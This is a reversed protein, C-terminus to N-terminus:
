GLSEYRNDQELGLIKALLEVRKGNEDGFVRRLKRSVYWRELYDELDALLDDPDLALERAGTDGPLGTEYRSIAFAVPDTIKERSAGYILWALFPYFPKDKFHRQIKLSVSARKLIDQFLAQPDVSEEPEEVVEPQADGEQSGDPNADNGNEFIETDSKAIANILNLSTTTSENILKISSEKNNVSLVTANAGLVYQLQVWDPVSDENRHTATAGLRAGNAINVGENAINIGESRHTANAGLRNIAAGLGNVVAGLEIELPEDLRILFTRQTHTGRNKRAPDEFVFQKVVDDLLWERVTKQTVGTLGIIDSLSASVRGDPTTSDRMWAIMWAAGPKLRPLWTEAFYQTLLVVDKYKIIHSQLDSAAKSSGGLSTVLQYVTMPDCNRLDDGAPILLEEPPVVLACKAAEEIGCDEALNILYNRLTCVDQPTLPVTMSVKYRNPAQHPKGDSNSQVWDGSRVKSVFGKLTDWTEDKAFRRWFTVPHIGAWRSIQRSSIDVKDAGHHLGAQYAAQRFGIYMWANEVGMRAIHRLFYRPIAIIREPQVIQDYDGSWTVEVALSEDEVGAPEKETILAQNASATSLNPEEVANAYEGATVFLIDTVTTGKMSEMNQLWSLIMGRFRSNLNNVQDDPAIVILVGNEDLTGVKLNRFHREFIAPINSFQTTRIAELTLNLAKQLNEM